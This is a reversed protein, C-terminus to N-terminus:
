AQNTVRQEIQQATGVNLHFWLASASTPQCQWFVHIPRRDARLAFDSAPTIFVLSVFALYSILFVVNVPDDCFGEIAM